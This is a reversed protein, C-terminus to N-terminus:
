TRVKLLFNAMGLFKRLQRLSTSPSIRQIAEVKTSLPQIGSSDILHGWIVLTRDLCVNTQMFAFMTRM